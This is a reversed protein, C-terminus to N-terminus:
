LGLTCSHIDKLLNRKHLEMMGRESLHGLHMHWMKTADNDTEISTADGM